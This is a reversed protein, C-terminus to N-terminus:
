WSIVYTDKGMYEVKFGKKVFLDTTSEPLQVIASNRFYRVARLIEEVARDVAEKEVYSTASELEACIEYAFPISYEDKTNM